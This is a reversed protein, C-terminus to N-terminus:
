PASSDVRRKGFLGRWSIYRDKPLGLLLWGSAVFTLVVPIAVFWGRVCPRFPWPDSNRQIFLLSLLIGILHVTETFLVLLATWNRWRFIEEARALHAGGGKLQGRKISEEHAAVRSSKVQDFIKYLEPFTISEPADDRLKLVKWAACKFYRLRELTHASVFVYLAGVVAALAALTQATASLFYLAETSMIQIPDAVQM